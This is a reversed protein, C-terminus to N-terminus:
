DISVDFSLQKEISRVRIMSVISRLLEAVDYELEVPHMKGSEIKSMDLLDNILGLLSESANRIDLAYNVVNLFYNKPVGAADERLIMEDMGMITNIPTRIEHSMNALFRSKASNAREAEDRANRIEDYQRSILTSKIFRWVIFGSVVAFLALLLLRVILLETFHPKKVIEFTEDMRIRKTRSDLIQIHLTYNGYKLRTYELPTISNRPVTIGEDNAGELYVHVLPNTMSYDMVSTTIVIRGESAPITYRGNEDPVIKEDDCYISALAVKIDVDGRYFNNINVCSVGDRGSIYLNGSDDLASYANSTPTSTLGNANTYLDYETINDSLMDDIKVCYVGYSSLIWADDKDDFYMDFNNNYPFTTVEHIRGDRIFEISNSTIIWYVGRKSDHLVRLIVDSTLGDERGLRIVHDQAIEYIGDGDTGVYVLGYDGEAVTLFVTNRIIDSDCVTGTVEFDKIYALGGNSGVLMSGDSAEVICRIENSPLGDDVTFNRIRGGATKVVVGLDHNYVAIWLNGASDETICRIRADGIFETLDNEVPQRLRDLIYLGSGTGIYLYGDHLCTANVIQGEIGAEKTVNVFNNTVVKMVGLTSSAYWLNGQYDCTMMEIANDMPLDDLTRFKGKDDFYGSLTQSTAWLKGCAFTLWQVSSLPAANMEQMRSMDDGFRGHYVLGKSTGLYVKGDESPDALIATVKDFGKDSGEFVSAVKCGTVTFLFGGKTIGYVTGAGDSTMNLVTEENLDDNDILHLTLSDDIYALGATTGIIINGNEDEEFCRISSSVLGDKYTFHVTEEGDIVAVGNDNTAVWIRGKSDEFLGRGSTLGGSTDMRIFNTGDYRIIGSYGGIWIYGDSSALIYNADSTPLGSSADYIQSSYGAGNIQGSASYGGGTLHSLHAPDAKVSLPFVCVTMATFAALALAFAKKM